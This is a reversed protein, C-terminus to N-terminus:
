RYVRYGKLIEVINYGLFFNFYIERFKKSLLFKLYYFLNVILNLFIEILIKLYM